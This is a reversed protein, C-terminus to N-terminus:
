AGYSEGSTPSLERHSFEPDHNAKQSHRRDNGSLPLVQIRQL